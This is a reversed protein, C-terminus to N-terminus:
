TLDRKSNWTSAGAPRAPLEGDEAFVAALMAAEEATVTSQGSPLLRFYTDDLADPALWEQPCFSLAPTHRIRRIVALRDHRSVGISLVAEEGSSHDRTKGL